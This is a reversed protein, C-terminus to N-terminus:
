KSDVSDLPASENGGGRLSLGGSDYRSSTFCKNFVMKTDHKNTALNTIMYYSWYTYRNSTSTQSGAYTLRIHIHQPIPAFRFSKFNNNLLTDPIDGVFSKEKM